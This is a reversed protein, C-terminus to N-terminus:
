ESGPVDFVRRFTGPRLTKAPKALRNVRPSVRDNVRWILLKQYYDSSRRHGNLNNTTITILELYCFLATAELDATLRLTTPELGVQPALEKRYIRVPCKEFAGSGRFVRNGGM